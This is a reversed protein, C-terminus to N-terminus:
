KNEEMRFVEELFGRCSYKKVINKELDEYSTKFFSLPIYKIQQIDEVIYINQKKYFDYNVIDKNDTILKTKGLISEMSRLTLGKQNKYNIELLVKSKKIYKINSLYNVREKTILMEDLEDKKTSNDVFLKINYSLSNLELYDKLKLIKDYRKTERLAGLYYFDIQKEPITNETNIYFSERFKYGYQECDDKDFSFIDDFGKLNFDKPLYEIKDWLFIIMKIKPNQVKLLEMFFVSFEGLGVVLFYDYGNIDKLINKIYQKKKKEFINKFFPFKRLERLIKFRKSRGIKQPFSGGIYKVKEFVRDLEDGLTEKYGEISDVYYLIKKDKKDEM